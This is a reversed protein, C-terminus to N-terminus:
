WGRAKRVKNDYWAPDRDVCAIHKFDQHQCWFCNIAEMFYAYTRTSWKLSFDLEFKNTIWVVKEFVDQDKLFKIWSDYINRHYFGQNSYPIAKHTERQHSIGIMKLLTKLAINPIPYSGAGFVDSIIGYRNHDEDLKRLWICSCYIDAALFVKDEPKSNFLIKAEPWEAFDEIKKFSTYKSSWSATAFGVFKAEDPFLDDVMYARAEAWRNDSHKNSVQTPLCKTPTDIINLDVKKMFPKTDLADWQSKSHGVVAIKLDKEVDFERDEQSAVYDRLEPNIKNLQRDRSQPCWNSDGVSVNEHVMLSQEVRDNFDLNLILNRQEANHIGNVHLFHADKARKSWEVMSSAWGRELHMAQWTMNFKESIQHHLEEPFTLTLYNQDFCWQRPYPRDPQKYWHALAKPIVMVGGNYMKTVEFAGNVLWKDREAPLLFKRITLEQEPKIWSTWGRSYWISMEEYMSLKDDPTLKFIDPAHDQVRIDCDLYLTKEYVSSINYVRYKNAMPWDPHQDGTLEIYDAGCKKAYAKISERTHGLTEMARDNAPIVCVALDSNRDEVKDVFNVLSVMGNRLAQRFTRPKANVKDHYEKREQPTLTQCWQWNPPDATMEKLLLDCWGAQKCQCKSFDKEVV